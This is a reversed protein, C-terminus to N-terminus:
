KVEKVIVIRRHMRSTKLYGHQTLWRVRDYAATPTIDFADALEKYTPSAGHKESYLKIFDLTVQQKDSLKYNPM